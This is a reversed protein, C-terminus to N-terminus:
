STEDKKVRFMKHLYDVISQTPAVGGGPTHLIIDLGKERHLRHVTMMFGNKDEDNIETGSIGPKSLFGSYYAIVNRGTHKHLDLLYRTKVINICNNADGSLQYQIAEQRARNALVAKEGM